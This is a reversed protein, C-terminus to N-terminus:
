AQLFLYTKKNTLIDGGTQKRFKKPDAYLDLIDDQIQFALGIHEGFDYIRKRDQKSAEGLIAGMELAAGLLVSTKLRIMEMYDAISIQPKEEFEMDLQQGECVEKAMKNFVIFL